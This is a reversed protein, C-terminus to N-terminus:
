NVLNKLHGHVDHIICISHRLLRHSWSIVPATVYYLLINVSRVQNIIQLVIQAQVYKQISHLWQPDVQVFHSECSKTRFCVLFRGSVVKVVNIHVQCIVGNIFHRVVVLLALIFLTVLAM